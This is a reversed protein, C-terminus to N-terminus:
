KTYAKNNKKYAFSIIDELEIEREKKRCYKNRYESSADNQYMCESSADNQYM